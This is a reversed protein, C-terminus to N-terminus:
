FDGAALSERRRQEELMYKRSRAMREDVSLDPNPTCTISGDANTEVLDGVARHIGLPDFNMLEKREDYLPHIFPQGGADNAM